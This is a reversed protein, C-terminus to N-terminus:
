VMLMFLIKRTLMNYTIMLVFRWLGTCNTKLDAQKKLLVFKAIKFNM